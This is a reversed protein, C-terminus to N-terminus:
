PIALKQLGKGYKYGALNQWTMNNEYNHIANEGQM